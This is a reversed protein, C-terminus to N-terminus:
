FTNERINQNLFRDAIFKQYFTFNSKISFNLFKILIPDQMKTYLCILIPYFIFTYNTECLNFILNIWLWPIVQCFQLEFFDKM